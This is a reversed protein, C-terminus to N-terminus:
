SRARRIGLAFLHRELEAAAEYEDSFVGPLSLVWTSARSMGNVRADWRGLKKAHEDRQFEPGALGVSITASRVRIRGAYFRMTRSRVLRVGFVTPRAPRRQKTM